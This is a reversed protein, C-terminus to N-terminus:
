DIDTPCKESMEKVLTKIFEKHIHITKRCKIVHEWTEDESYRPCENGYEKKNIMDMRLGYPNIRHACKIM